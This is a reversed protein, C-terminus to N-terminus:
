KRCIPWFRSPVRHRVACVSRIRYLEPKDVGPPVTGNEDPGVMIAATRLWNVVM